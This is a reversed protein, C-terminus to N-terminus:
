ITNLHTKVVKILERETFPKQLFGNAKNNHLASTFEFDTSDFATMLLVIVKSNIERIKTIFDFGNMGPMRVDSLVLDYSNCNMKFHELALSPETFGFVNFGRRQLLQRIISIIDFDDDLALITPNSGNIISTSM